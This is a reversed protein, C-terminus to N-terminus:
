RRWLWLLLLWLLVRIVGIRSSYGVRAILLDVVIVSPVAIANDVVRLLHALRRVPVMVRVLGTIGVMAAMGRSIVRVIVLAGIMGAIMGVVMGIVLAMGTVLAM